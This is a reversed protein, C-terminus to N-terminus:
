KMKEKGLKRLKKFQNKAPEKVTMKCIIIMCQKVYGLM